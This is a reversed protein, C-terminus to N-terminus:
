LTFELRDAFRRVEFTDLPESGPGKMVIGQLDFESGHCPCEFKTRLKKVECGSHSCTSLVASVNGDDRTFLIIPNAYQDVYVKAYGNPLNLDPISALPLVVTNNTSTVHLAQTSVACGELLASLPLCGAVAISQLFTKRDM